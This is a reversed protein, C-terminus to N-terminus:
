PRKENLVLFWVLKVFKKALTNRAVSVAQARTQTEGLFLETGNTIHLHQFVSLSPQCLIHFFICTLIHAAYKVTWQKQQSLIKHKKQKKLNSYSSTLDHSLICSNIKLDMDNQLLIKSNSISSITHLYNSKYRGYKRFNTDSSM